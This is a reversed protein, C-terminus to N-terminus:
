IGIRSARLDECSHADRWAPTAFLLLGREPLESCLRSLHKGRMSETRKRTAYVARREAPDKDIRRRLTPSSREPVYPRMGPDTALTIVKTSHYGKDAVIAQLHNEAGAQEANVAADIATDNITQTDPANGPRLTAAVVIYTDLDVAHEAKYAM